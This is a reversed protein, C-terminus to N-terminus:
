GWDAWRQKQSPTALGHADIYQVLDDDVLEAMADVRCLLVEAASVYDAQDLDVDAHVLLMGSGDLGLKVDWYTVNTALCWTLFGPGAGPPTPLRVFVRLSGAEPDFDFTLTVRGYRWELEVSLGSEVVEIGPLRATLLEHLAGLIDDTPTM